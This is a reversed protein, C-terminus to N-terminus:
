KQNNPQTLAKFSKSEATRLINVWEQFAKHREEMPELYMEMPASKGPPWIGTDREFAMLTVDSQLLKNYDETDRVFQNVVARLANYYPEVSEVMEERKKRETQLTQTVWQEAELGNGDLKNGGDIVYRFSFEGVIEEVSREPATM